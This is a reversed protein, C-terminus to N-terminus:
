SNKTSNWYAKLSEPTWARWHRCSEKCDIIYKGDIKENAYVCEDRGDYDIVCNDPTQGNYLELFCGYKIESLTPPTVTWGNKRLEDIVNQAEDTINKSCM